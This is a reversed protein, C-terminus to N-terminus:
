RWTRRACRTRSDRERRRLRDALLIRARADEPVERLHAELAQIRRLRMNRLAETKGLAGLANM